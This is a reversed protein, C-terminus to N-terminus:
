AHPGVDLGARRLLVAAANGYYGLATLLITQPLPGTGLFSPRHGKFTALAAAAALAGAAGFSEGFVSKPSVLPVDARVRTRVAAEEARDFARLGSMSGFVADVSDASIGAQACVEDIARVLARESPVFLSDSATAGFTTSAGLVEAIAKAGRQAAHAETEVIAFSAGEGIVCESVLSGLRGFALAISESLAEGGGVALVSARDTEFFQRALVFTDLAGCNGDSVSVNLARVDEWISAYGAATNSVTNPFKSPNIYRADELVAVRDLENIAELSGYANSCCFGIAEADVGVYAGDKKLGADHLAFRAALVLEKTLRDLSRLGKDGLWPAPDFEPIERILPAGVADSSAKTATHREAHPLASEFADNGVGVTSVIGYGTIVLKV